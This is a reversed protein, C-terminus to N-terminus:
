RVARWKLRCYRGRDRLWRRYCCCADSGRITGRRRPVQIGEEGKNSSSHGVPLQFRLRQVELRLLLGVLHRHIM